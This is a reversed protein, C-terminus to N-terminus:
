CEYNNVVYNPTSKVVVSERGRIIVYQREGDQHVFIFHVHSVHPCCIITVAYFWKCDSVRTFLRYICTPKILMYITKTFSYTAKASKLLWTCARVYDEIQQHLDTNSLFIHCDISYSVSYQSADIRQCFLCLKFM